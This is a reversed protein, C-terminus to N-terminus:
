ATQLPQVNSVQSMAAIVFSDKEPYVLMLNSKMLIANEPHRVEHIEGNTLHVEFPVFPQRRLMAQIPEANM